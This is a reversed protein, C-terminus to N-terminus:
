CRPVWRGLEAGGRVGQGRGERQSAPRCPVVWFPEPSRPPAASQGLDKPRRLRLSYPFFKPLAEGLGFLAQGPAGLAGFGAGVGRASHRFEEM